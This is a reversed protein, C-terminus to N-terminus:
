LAIEFTTKGDRTLVSINGHQLRIYEMSLAMGIGTQGGAGKYFRDFIFLISCLRDVNQTLVGNILSSLVRSMYLNSDPSGLYGM